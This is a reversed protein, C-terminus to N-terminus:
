KKSNKDAELIIEEELFKYGKKVDSFIEPHYDYNNSLVARRFSQYHTNGIDLKFYKGVELILQKKTLGQHKIYGMQALSLLAQIFGIKGQQSDWYINPNIQPLEPKSEFAINFLSAIHKIISLAKSITKLLMYYMHKIKRYGSFNTKIKQLRSKITFVKPTNIFMTKQLKNFIQKVRKERSKIEISLYRLFVEKNDQQKTLLFFLTDTKFKNINLEL